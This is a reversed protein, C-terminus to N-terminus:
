NKASNSSSESAFILLVNKTFITMQGCGLMMHFSKGDANEATTDGDTNIETCDSGTMTCFGLATTHRPTHSFGSGLTSMM